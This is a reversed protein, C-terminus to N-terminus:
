RMVLLGDFAAGAAIRSGSVRDSAQGEDTWGSSSLKGFYIDALLQNKVTFLYGPSAPQQPQSLAGPCPAPATSRAHKQAAM